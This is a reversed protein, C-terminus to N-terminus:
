LALTAIVVAAVAAIVILLIWIPWNSSARAPEQVSSSEQALSAAVQGVTPPTGAAEDDTGLPAAAPDPFDVKAGTRGTDIAHRLVDPNGRRDEPSM